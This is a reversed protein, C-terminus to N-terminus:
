RTAARLTYSKKAQSLLLAPQVAHIHRAAAEQAARLHQARCVKCGLRMGSLYPARILTLQNSGYPRVKDIVALYQTDKEGGPAALLLVGGCALSNFLEQVSADFSVPAKQFFMDDPGM